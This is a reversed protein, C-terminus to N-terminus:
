NFKKRLTKLHKKVIEEPINDMKATIKLADIAHEISMGNIIDRHSKNSISALFNIHHELYDRISKKDKSQRNIDQLTKQIQVNNKLAENMAKPIDVTNIDRIGMAKLEDISEDLSNASIIPTCTLADIIEQKTPSEIPKNHLM